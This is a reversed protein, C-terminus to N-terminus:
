AVECTGGLKGDEVGTVSGTVEPTGGVSETVECTVETMGCTVGTVEWAVGIVGWTVVTVGELGWRGVDDVPYTSTDDASIHGGSVQRSGREV